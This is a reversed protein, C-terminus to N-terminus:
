PAMTTRFFEQSINNTLAPQLHVLTGNGNVIELLPGIQWAGPDNLNFNFDLTFRQDTRGSILFLDYPPQRDYALFQVPSLDPVVPSRLILGEVGVAMLQGQHAALGYLSKYTVTGINIWDSLNTSALLTGQTGAVFYTEEIKIVDNLWRSTGSSPRNWVQGDPSTLILGDQGVAVLQGDVYRIRYIWNTVSSSQPTWQLSDPSLLVTGVQGVAVIGGPFSALSSLYAETPSSQATWNTGDSSTLITGKGGTVVFRDQFLTVGQLDNTTPRPETAYWFIGLSSTQNTILTGDANTRVLEVLENPSFILSGQNGAAVLGNTSGGVGLFVSNTVSAPVLELEWDVGDVSTLVNARDGVAVYIEPLRQVEWLWNRVSNTHLTWNLGGGGFTGSGEVMVGSRGGVLYNGQLSTSDGEWLATRYTWIPVPNAKAPDTEASWTQSFTNYLRVEDEGVVLRSNLNAAVAYLTNTTGSAIPNWTL